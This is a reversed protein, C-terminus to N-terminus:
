DTKKISKQIKQSKDLVSFKFRVDLNRNKKTDVINLYRKEKDKTDFIKDRYYRPLSMNKGNYMLSRNPDDKFFKKIKEDLFSLGLQKSMLAKEPTRLDSKNIKYSKKLCYKLTYTISESTVNGSHSHGYKWTDKFLQLEVNFVILHYHPRHTREGYEGVAFYKLKSNYGYERYFKTRYQKFFRQLDKYDLNQLGDESFTICEDDYTLTVFYANQSVAMEQLLRFRWASQRSQMCEYCKGCPVVNTKYIEYIKPNENKLTIPAVCM